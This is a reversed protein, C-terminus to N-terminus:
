DWFPFLTPNVTLLQFEQHQFHCKSVPIAECSWFFHTQSIRELVCCKQKRKKRHLSSKSENEPAAGGLVPWGQKLAATQTMMMMKREPAKGRPISRGWQWSDRETHRRGRGPCRWCRVSDSGFRWPHCCLWRKRQCAQGTGWTSWGPPPWWRRPAVSRWDQHVGWPQQQYYWCKCGRYPSEPAPQPPSPSSSAQTPSFSPCYAPTSPPTLPAPSPWADLSSEQVPLPQLLPPTRPLQSSIWPPFVWVPASTSALRATPNSRNGWSSCSSCRCSSCPPTDVQPTSSSRRAATATSRRRQERDQCRGWGQSASARCLLAGRSEGGCRPPWSLQLGASEMLVARTGRRGCRRCTCTLSGREPSSCTNKVGM